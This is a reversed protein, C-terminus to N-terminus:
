PRGLVLTANTGGFGFSNSLAVSMEATRPEMVPPYAELEPDLTDVNVCPAIWGGRLMALTFIAEIAGAASVPHGTYGKTSSYPVARGNLVAQLARVELVDGVQTSTGHTNVYDVDDPDVEAHALARRMANEAGESAPAVMNGSGDSSMGFGKLVGLITVGRAEASARTELVLIGAGESFVFGARDAAYPRSAREPRDNDQQTYARMADFGAHFHIDVVEVGGAIAADVHGFEILQAALLVNYAGGACAATATFSPGTAGLVTALNASVTSAM